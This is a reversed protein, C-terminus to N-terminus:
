GFSGRLVETVLGWTIGSIFGLVAGLVAGPWIPEGRRSSDFIGTIIGVATFAVVNIEFDTLRGGRYRSVALRLFILM